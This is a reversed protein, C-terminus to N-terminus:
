RTMKPAAPAFTEGFFDGAYWRPPQAANAIARSIEANVRAFKVATNWDIPLSLDDSPEHYHNLRFDREADRCALGGRADHWGTKLFVAPIGARVLPYHDSRTFLAEAPQPDPSLTLGARRAAAAVLPGMTSRDAGYAIVDGFDCTLIPMDLNVESVIRESAVTPFRAFYSSGMLGGEEGTTVMFLLSRRPSRKDAAFSRAVELLTAVGAANDLAGNYIRDGDGARQGLHDLHATLLVLQDTLAVDSGPLRAIVNPSTITSLATSRELTVTGPLAFGRPAATDALAQVAGFSQPSGAFLQAAAADDVSAAFRLPGADADPAGDPGIWNRRPLRAGAATKAWPARAAQALSRVIIMGVAGNAGAAAGKGRALHAAVEGNLAGPAGALVM